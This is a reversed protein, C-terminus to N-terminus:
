SSSTAMGLTTFTFSRSTSKTSQLGTGDAVALGVEPGDAVGVIEIVGVGEKGADSVGVVDNVAEIVSVTDSVGDLDPVNLALVEM